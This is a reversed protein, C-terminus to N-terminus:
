YVGGMIINVIAVAALSITISRVILRLAYFEFKKM